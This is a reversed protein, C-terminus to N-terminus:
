YFKKDLDTKGAYILDLTKAVSFSKCALRINTPTAMSRVFAGLLSSHKDIGLKEL